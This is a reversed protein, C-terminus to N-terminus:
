DLELNLWVGYDAWSGDRKRFGGRISAPCTITSQYRRRYRKADERSLHGVMYGGIEVRVANPDKPNQNDPILTADKSVDVGDPKPRGLLKRFNDKYFSEGVVAVETVEVLKISIPAPSQPRTFLSRLWQM